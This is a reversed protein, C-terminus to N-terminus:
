QERRNKDNKAPQDKQGTQENKEKKNKAMAHAGVVVAAVIALKKMVRAHVVPTALLMAAVVFAATLKKM